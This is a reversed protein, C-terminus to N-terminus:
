GSCPLAPLDNRLVLRRYPEPASLSVPILAWGSLDVTNTHGGIRDDKEFVTVEHHKSLLWAASMGAIGTGVIGIKQPTITQDKHM